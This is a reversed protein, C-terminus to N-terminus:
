KRSKQWGKIKKRRGEFRQARKSKKEPEVQSTDYETVDCTLATYLAYLQPALSKGRCRAQEKM